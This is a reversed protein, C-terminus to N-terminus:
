TRALPPVNALRKRRWVLEATLGAGACAAALPREWRGRPGDLTSAAFVGLGVWLLKRWQYSDHLRALNRRWEQHARVQPSAPLARRAVAAAAKLGFLVVLLVALAFAIGAAPHVARLALVFLAGLVARWLAGAAGVDFGLLLREVDL